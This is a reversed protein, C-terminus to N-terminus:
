LEFPINEHKPYHKDKQYKIQTLITNIRKTYLAGLLICIWQLIVLCWLIIDPLIQGLANGTTDIINSAGGAISDIIDVSGESLSGFLSGLTNGIAGIVSATGQSVERLVGGLDAM